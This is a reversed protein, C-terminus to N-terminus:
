VRLLSPALLERRLAVLKPAPEALNWSDTLLAREYSEWEQRVGALDGHMAHARMRLSILEEHGALVKLGQGTAWFVGDIDGMSLYHTALTSAVSTVLLTLQTTIGETDPWLYSTGFYVHDRVLALGPRLTAIADLPLQGGAHDLRLRLLDADTMVVEHIPLQETLTRPIWEARDDLVALRALSRRSDSVVNAFTADRVNLEWLATRAATRTSRERHQSLWVVLELAKAREFSAVQGSRDCVEVPGLLRVMLVWPPEHWANSARDDVGRAAVAAQSPEAVLVKDAEDLLMRVPELEAASLGVPVLPLGLPHLIWQQSQQELRWRAGHVARDVVVALGRGGSATLNVLEADDHSDPQGGLAAVVIAPEWAEGGQRRTRLTFTSLSPSTTTATAGVLQVAMDLAADLSSATHADTRGLHADDLGCTVLHAIESLPSVALSAAIARAVNSALPMQADITLLGVAELDVYIQVPEGSGPEVTSGLHALAPCPQNVRRAREALADLQVAAPLQWHSEGVATWPAPAHPVPANLLVELAGDAFQAATLVGIGPAMEDLESALARLALDLRAIQEGDDLRRLLTEAVVLRRAPDPLRAGKPASRLQRRRRIALGGLVGTALLVAGGLGSTVPSQHLSPSPATTPTCQDPMAAHADVFVAEAAKVPDHALLTVRSPQLEAASVFRPLSSVLLVIAAVLSTALTQSWGFSRRRPNSRGAIAAVAELVVSLALRAWALWLAVALVKIVTADSIDGRRLTQLVNHLPPVAHPWPRGLGRAMLVPAGVLLGIVATLAVLGRLIRSM